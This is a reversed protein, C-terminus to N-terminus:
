STAEYTPVIATPQGGQAVVQAGFRAPGQAADRLGGGSKVVIFGILVDSSLRWPSQLM